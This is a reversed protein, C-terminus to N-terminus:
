NLEMLTAAVKGLAQARAWAVDISKAVDLARRFAKLAEAANGARAHSIAINSLLWARDLPSPISDVSALSLAETRRAEETEGNNAQAAAVTWLAHARLRDVGIENAAALGAEIEGIEVLAMARRSMAYARPYALSEDIADIEVRAVDLTELAKSIDGSEGMALGIGALVLARYRAGDISESLALAREHHGARALSAAIAVVAPRREVSDPIQDLMM